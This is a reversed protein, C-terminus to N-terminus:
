YINFSRPKLGAAIVGAFTIFELILLVDGDSKLEPTNHPFLSM